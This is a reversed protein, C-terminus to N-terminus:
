NVHRVLAQGYLDKIIHLNITRAKLELPTTRETRTDSTLENVHLKHATVEGEKKSEFWPSIIKKPDSLPVKYAISILPSINLTPSTFKDTFSNASKTFLTTPSSTFRLNISLSSLLDYWM